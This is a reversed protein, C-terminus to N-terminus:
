IVVFGKHSNKDAQLGCKKKEDFLPKQRSIIDNIYQVYSIRRTSVYRLQRVAEALGRDMLCADEVACCGCYYRNMGFSVFGYNKPDEETTLEM